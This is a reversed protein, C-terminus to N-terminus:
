QLGVTSKWQLSQQLGWRLSESPPRPPTVTSPPDVAASRPHLTHSPTPTLSHPTHPLSHRHVSSLAATLGSPCPLKERLRKKPRAWGVRENCGRGRVPVRGRLCCGAGPCSGQGGELVGWSLIRECDRAGWWVPTLPLGAGQGRCRGSTKKQGKSLVGVLFRLRFGHVVGVGLVLGCMCCVGWVGRWM